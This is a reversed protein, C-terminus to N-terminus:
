EGEMRRFIVIVLIGLILVILGSIALAIWPIVNSVM